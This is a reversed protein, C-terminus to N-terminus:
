RPMVDIVVRFARRLAQSQSLYAGIAMLEELQRMAKQKDQNMTKPIFGGQQIWSHLDRCANSLQEASGNKLGEIILQLTAEPDM